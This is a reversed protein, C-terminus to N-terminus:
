PSIPHSNSSPAHEVLNRFKPVRLPSWIRALRAHARVRSGYWFSIALRSCLYAAPPRLSTQRSRKAAALPEGVILRETGRTSDSDAGYPWFRRDGGTEPSGRTLITAGGESALHQMLVRWRADNGGPALRAM